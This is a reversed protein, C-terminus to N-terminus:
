GPKPLLLGTGLLMVVAVAAWANMQVACSTFGARGQMPRAEAAACQLLIVDLRKSPVCHMM